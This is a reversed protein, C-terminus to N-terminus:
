HSCSGIQTSYCVSTLKIYVIKTPRTWITKSYCLFEFLTAVTGLRGLSQSLAARQEPTLTKCTLSVNELMNPTGMEYRMRGNFNLDQRTLQMM